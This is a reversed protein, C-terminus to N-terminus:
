KLQGCIACGGQVTRTGKECNPCFPTDEKKKPEGLVAENVMDDTVKEVAMITTGAKKKPQKRPYKGKVVLEKIEKMLKSIDKKEQVTHEIIRNLKGDIITINRKFDEIDEEITM